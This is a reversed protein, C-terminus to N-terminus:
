QYCICFDTSSDGDPTLVPEMQLVIHQFVEPDAAIGNRYMKRILDPRHKKLLNRLLREGLPEDNNLEGGELVELMTYIIELETVM